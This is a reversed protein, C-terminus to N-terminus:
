REPADTGEDINVIRAMYSMARAGLALYKM